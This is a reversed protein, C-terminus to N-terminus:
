TEYGLPQMLLATIVAKPHHHALVAISVLALMKVEVYNIKEVVSLIKVVIDDVYHFMEGGKVNLFTKLVITVGTASQEESDLLGNLLSETFNILQYHPMKISIIKAYESIAENVTNIDNSQINLLIEMLHETNLLDDSEQMTSSTMSSSLGDYKTAINLVLNVCHVAETRIEIISDNCRPM